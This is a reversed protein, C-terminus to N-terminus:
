RSAWTAAALTSSVTEVKHPDRSETEGLRTLNVENTKEDWSWHIKRHCNACLVDCKELEPLMREFNWGKKLAQNVEFEKENPDRHHFELCSPHTENCTSCGRLVKYNIIESRIRRVRDKSKDKYYGKKRRYHAKQYERQTDRHKEPDKYPM